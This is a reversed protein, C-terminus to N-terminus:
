PKVLDAVAGRTSKKFQIGETTLIERKRQEAPAKYLDGIPTPLIGQERQAQQYEGWQKRLGEMTQTDNERYAKAYEHKLREERLKYYEQTAYMHEQLMNHLEMRETGFGLLALNKDLFTMDEPRMLVDNKSNTLGGFSETGPAGNQRYVKMANRLLTPMLQETGKYYDGQRFKQYAGQADSALGVAPGLFTTLMDEMRGRDSIDMKSLPVVTMMAGAGIRDTLPVGMAGPVGHVLLEAMEKGAHTKLLEYLHTDPDLPKNKDKFLWDIITSVVGYGPLGMIGTVAGYHLFTYKLMARGM